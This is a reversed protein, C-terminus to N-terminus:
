SLPKADKTTYLSTNQRTVAAVRTRNGALSIVKQKVKQSVRFLALLSMSYVKRTDGRALCHRLSTGYPYPRSEASATLLDRMDRRCFFSTSQM